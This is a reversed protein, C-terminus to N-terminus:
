KEQVTVLGSKALERWTDIYAQQSDANQMCIELTATLKRIFQEAKGKGMGEADALIATMKSEPLSSALLKSYNWLAAFRESTIGTDLGDSVHTMTVAISAGNSMEKLHKAQAPSSELIESAIAYVASCTAWADAQRHADKMLIFPVDVNVYSEQSQGFVTHASVIFACALIEIHKM